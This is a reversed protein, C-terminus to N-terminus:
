RGGEAREELKGQVFSEVVQRLKSCHGRSSSADALIKTRVAEDDLEAANVRVCYWAAQGTADALVAAVGLDSLLYKNAAQQLEVMTTLANSVTAMIQIPVGIASLVATQYAHPDAADGRAEKSASKMRVYAEADQTILARLIQDARILRSAAGEVKAKEAPTTKKGISYAAVMRAMACSLAGALASAGGGGPAPTRDALQDLFGGVREKTFDDM